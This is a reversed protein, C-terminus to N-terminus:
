TAATTVAARAVLPLVRRSAQAASGSTTIASRIPECERSTGVMSGRYQVSGGGLARIRLASGDNTRTQPTASREAPSGPYADSGTSKKAARSVRSQLRGGTQPRAVDPPSVGIM